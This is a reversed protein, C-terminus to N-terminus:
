RRASASFGRAIGSLLAIACIGIVVNSSVDGPVLNM